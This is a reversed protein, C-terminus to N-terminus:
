GARARASPHFRGLPVDQASGAIFPYRNFAAQCLPLVKSRWADSLETSAGSATVQSSAASVTELMDRGAQARGAGGAAVAGGRQPVAARRAAAAVMGLLAAGQNPANAAQNMGAYIQQIKAIVGGSAAPTTRAPSSCTCRRFHADVRTPRISRSAAPGEGFASGLVSAIEAEEIGMGM